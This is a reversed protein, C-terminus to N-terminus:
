FMKTKIKTKTKQKTKTKKAKYNKIKTKNQNIKIEKRGEHDETIKQLFFQKKIGSTIEFFKAETM